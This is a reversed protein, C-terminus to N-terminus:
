KKGRIYIPEGGRLIGKANYINSGGKTYRFYGLLYQRCSGCVAIPYQWEKGNHTLQVLRLDWVTEGYHYQCQGVYEKFNKKM